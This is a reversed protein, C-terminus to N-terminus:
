SPLTTTEDPLSTTTTSTTTSSTTTSTTTPKTTTTTSSRGATTSTTGTGPRTTATSGPRSTGSSGIPVVHGDVVTSRPPLPVVTEEGTAPDMIRATVPAPRIVEGAGSFSVAVAPQSPPITTPAGNEGAETRRASPVALEVPDDGGHNVWAFGMAVAFIVTALLTEAVSGHAFQRARRPEDNGLGMGGM